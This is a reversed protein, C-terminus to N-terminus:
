DIRGEPDYPVRNKSIKQLRQLKDKKIANSVLVPKNVLVYISNFALRSIPPQIKLSM